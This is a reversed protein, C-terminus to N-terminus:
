KKKEKEKTKSDECTPPETKLGAVMSTGSRGPGTVVVGRRM